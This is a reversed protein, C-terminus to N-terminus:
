EVMLRQTQGGGRLVYVGSALGAPLLLHATGAADATATTVVRGLADLVELRAHAAVGSVVFADHAPNPYLMVANKGVAVSRVPSYTATGDTDVQRLRYYLTSTAGSYTDDSFTYYSLSASYGKAAVTGIRGFSRGDYSREVEYRASNKESATRWALAVAAGQQEATFTVLEVPLPAIARGLTWTSFSSIDAKTVTNLGADFIVPNQQAWPGATGNSSKFLALSAEPINNLENDRYSLVMDVDLGSDVTPDIEFYRQISQIGNGSTVATGTFRRVLTSGPLTSGSPTLSLGLGGFTESSGATVLGRTTQVTGTVYGAATETITATPSLTIAATGTSLVGQTLTLAQSVTLPQALALTGGGSVALGRVTAPLANGAQQAGSGTYVYSADPSFSRPGTLQLSGTGPLDSLGEASGIGLTAGAALTFPADGSLVFNGLLLVGNIRLSGLVQVNAEFRTVAGPAIVLDDYAGAPVIVPAAVSGGTATLDPVQEYHRLTGDSAGVLLDLLGDGDLDTFTPIASVGVDITNFNNTVLTFGTSNDANQEYHSLNGDSNGVLLDLLGDGDLDTFTPAANYGVNINSFSETRLTFSTSYAANQEYHALTGYNYLDGVLMDLLGDGDLDTFTPKLGNELGLNLNIGNFIKTVLTFSTSNAADQEYHALHGNGFNGVLLDLLGDGDLDTFTPVLSSGEIDSFSNTRLTFSTSNPADQEYHVLAYDRGVLMDLLGDGDLDTFTPAANYSVRIDNFAETVLAFSESNFKTVGFATSSLAQSGPNTAVLVRHTSAGRPVTVTLSTASNVVFAAPQEGLLVSSTASLNTGTITFTSGQPGSTPNVATITPGLVVTFTLGNSTGGPTSITVSYSGPSLNAPVTATVTTIDRVRFSAATSGFRVATVGFFGTGTLTVERDVAGGTPSLATLTPVPAPAQEYHRLTTIGYDDDYGGVLLDLRGDGDVDTFTPASYQDVAISNFNNTVLTFDTSNPASQEYHHLNGDLEGVLMDLLGDGDLDTFTPAANSGVNINNFSETVLAFSTSNPTSQEYHSISGNYKGVLLDLLGDGDLDTFTPAPLDVAISNFNNTVLTFDTSNAANQEYHRLINNGDYGGVLMDLLGDGDLDTFTSGSLSAVPMSNFNNTVLTFDTSNPASQEYHNLLGQDNKGVLLDLLGDGDLDTFTTFGQSAAIGSFAQTVELFYESNLKDVGFAAGSLATGIPTSVQVKHTSAGRPVTVTLQTASNVVFAAPQEGLLVSSTAGLNTGTLIFTSGQAGSAPNVATITPALVVTFVLPNSTGAPTTITVNYSGPTLAAPVMVTATVNTISSVTAATGNFSVTSGVMFNTGTLTVETGAGGSTPNLATLTPATLAQEYHRLITIGEDDDYGGVLMDLRGDGDVDTFTPAATYSVKIGNFTDTVLTFSLSNPVNQEYHSLSGGSKGVLLDLRGDGNLDAFTPASQYGVDIGNFNTTVFAFSTSNLASQEYHYLRGESEGVLLDLLGDGNLDTFTPTANYGVAVGNFNTTVLMFGTSTPANQEYHNLTGDSKGVLLDLRGDGDLDTFTPASEYGVDIDNFKATVLTFSTSNAANQEYHSLTGDSKGVLLDLLDDGDLDTFTPKANVYSGLDINSFTEAVLPFAETDLKDVGFAASSLATGGSTTVQVKYTSAGRPVTVTLQTALNVVFTAPQGGLRVSTTGMLNTGTLIFTSGQAGSAPNVATITPAEAVDTVSVTVTAAASLTGDSVQVTLAYTNTTEFDLPGAVTLQGTSANIAFLGGSNGATISYTLTTGADPDSATLVAGVATGNASNEPVSRSQNAIAPAENVNTMAVTVTATSTLTGDSVQVTLAYSSTTEFNLAGAVTLQGTSANLAFKGAANGATLSYTLTTAADPDTATLAAGVLTGTSTNEAVSRSQASIVPAENVNTITITFTQEFSLGGADTTRVRIAYSAQTEFDASATLRLADGSLTFRANDTSGSGAVLAYTFGTTNDPDTTTFTGVSANAGANEVVTSNSLALATPAQNPVPVTFTQGNSTGGPTTITVNGTTAGTPVTATASGDASVSFTTAATGNFSVATANTFGTGTLTVSTGVPGSTPNLATLTPVPANTKGLTWVSFSGIGAKTVTNALSNLAFMGQQAWPGATGNSSKFLALSAEPINNLENDRYSLVMDVSLGSDVTPDIEYYRQISQGGNVSTLATGTFRRVLTSGPLTSGSPTLSLGLGGFTETSGATALGRTTQVTGTVYGAATETLTATPSLTIASAGTNLIGQTLTLAQSVTLPQALALTGGGTVQLGRVTTPLANGAQQPGTSTYVYTADSSLSRTGTLQLSGTGPLSSIGQASGIGLTAGAALTFPASGSLVSNGLLLVGNLQVSGLVQVNAEFRAVAGPAVVFDDYIGAPVIFPAATTGTTVTLDPIQEYHNLNGAGGEGVIMDLLGDGDLDTFTPKSHYGVAINNFTASRLVFSRSNAAVQEYHNLAGGDDKGVIMDLLGDGDLDTFTPASILGVAINNFKTTVLTFLTSNVANQEYHYLNGEHEGVLLDLRGNGDLDTFTPAAFSVVAINNFNTTVLTFSLSNVASQEYHLLTGDEGKGVLMDLLGDGDLDTFTPMSYFHTDVGNFYKTVLAFSLSNVASQEYHSLRGNVDGVLMDLRNDGDLDTFTPASYGVTINNFTETVLAFSESSNKTVSFASNSLAPGGLASVQVKHTSAGRPVTVTLQTDLNREFAAPQGGLRVSSTTGLNTGTITFSSGQAGSTPNVATITPALAVTFAVANSTGTPTTITVNYSGPTLSAPVTARVTTANTVSLVTAATGNFSVTSGATFNTGTLTVETGVAGSPPNLSILTAAEAVDTISVTVTATSSLTGDSVQVTLAYTSTAEFDLAGAVTLQGTSANLAFVGGTNGATLSYTLTTGADPDTATLAAGVLTGNASNEAVSRSQNAIVPSENANLIGVTVTATSTLAGDSVQVTLAYSSMTEFDLAGAVTLQGTSPNVAFTGAANGATISYTLTTGADPDTATLAAGVLTGNASNEAVSRSQNAIAPAENVNTITITFTQEFSLGGADTTRVRIAYSAQTEFDASATLRLADGSLTFRANDTSGSGAVLAYTFGTTNDPDTTTFTGVSANAGANEAVTTNSLALATPALFVTFTQGNSTGGPTTITVTGTTAGTPVTATASGDASVSFTTAATGNFSVATANTFGTGTLTVSTGVPGSTPNLATLTPVPSATVTFTRRDSTGGNPTSITVGYSGPTLAVPVTATATGDASVSFSAATGNFHVATAGTFRVGTLTVVTGVPGNTPNLGTAANIFPALAQEYHYISFYEGVLMDLRGDGDLDTFTPKSNDGVDIFAFNETVLTFSTSNVANQEYHNLTGDYEGVLLDLRNNGDLDVIAPASLYGVAIGNFTNTRLTFATSNAADQEYHRLSGDYQGVLLDLLGDGDLDTFTPASNDGVNINNFTNTVLTFSLGNAVDQEYHHLNGGEEGVLMDLLGDGDLDTFTPASSYGVNIDNRVTTNNFTETVLPFSNLSRKTVTFATTRLATGGPTTVRVRHTSGGRPVTVTLQTASNITFAMPQAGLLVSSTASLNTGTLTFTSGQAGSTPNFGSITPAQALALGPLLVLWLGALLARVARALGAKGRLHSYFYKMLLHLPDASCYRGAGQGPCCDVPFSFSPRSLRGPFRPVARGLRRSHGEGSIVPPGDRRPPGTGAPHALLLSHALPEAEGPLPSGVLRGVGSIDSPVPQVPLASTPAAGARVLGADAGPCNPTRSM